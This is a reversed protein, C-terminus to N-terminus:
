FFNGAKKLRYYHDKDRYKIIQVPNGGAIALPPIDKTVVTGLAIIAGEGITVNGVISVRNGLWVNDGIVIHKVIYTDDYPIAEGVDYNHNQTVIMCEIGSHFNDGITVSGGGLIKIGNFNCNNGLYINGTFVCPGNVRLNTGCKKAYKRLSCTRKYRMINKILKISEQYIKRFIIFM